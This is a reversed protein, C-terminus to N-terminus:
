ARIASRLCKSRHVILPRVPQRRVDVALEVVFRADRELRVKRGAPRAVRRERLQTLHDRARLRKFVAGRRSVQPRVNARPQGRALPGPYGATETQGDPLQEGRADREHQQAGATDPETETGSRQGWGRCLRYGAWGDNLNIRAPSRSGVGRHCLELLRQRTVLPLEVGRRHAHEMLTEGDDVARDRLRLARQLAIRAAIVQVQMEGIRHPLFDLQQPAGVRQCRTLALFALSPVCSMCISNAASAATVSARGWLSLM